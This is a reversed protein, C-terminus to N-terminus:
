NFGFIMHCGIIILIDYCLWTTGIGAGAAAAAGDNTIGIITGAIGVNATANHVARATVGAGTCRTAGGASTDDGAGVGAGAGAIVVM